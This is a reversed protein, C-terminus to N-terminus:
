AGRRELVIREAAVRDLHQAMEDWTSDWSSLALQADVRRLWGPDPPALSDRLRGAINGSDAIAVLGTSGYGRVVDAVATSTVPLGAALFEPTKTPSIFRTADNLAFPMWGADWHGLYGPLEDYSKGGLWHLNPAQPLAAPDVKVVPGLMVFHVDPCEAAAQAVLDADLREDIVGFFGIRPHPIAAQDQPDVGPNRAAAFHSVDISSPFAFVRPHRHRKAAHLSYGGTFVVDAVKFLTDERDLLGPPPNHFASLEDMCDYVIIDASLGQTYDLAMPTYYWAVLEDPNRRAIEKTLLRRIITAQDPAGRPIIPTAVDLSEQVERLDLRAEDVDDEVPEEVYLVAREKAARTLLHHPRQFVLDWPLHSFCALLRTTNQAPAAIMPLVKKFPRRTM